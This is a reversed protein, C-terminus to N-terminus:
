GPLQIGPEAAMSAAQRDIFANWDTAREILKDRVQEHTFVMFTDDVIAAAVQEGVAEPQLVPFGPSRTTTPPGFTPPMTSMINTMVPGPCLVTVGIGQPRLYLRLGESLAIIAAKTAAYPLRDYAYTYLGAFSATNVVHGHGQAILLPLFAANSRVVSMLNVSIVREWEAVPIHEPLGRTLVGVNNMIIGASGFRELTADRLSEFADPAAVDCRVGIAEGGASTVAAAVAQAAQGDIDAVVIRAGRSALSFATARGIGSGGGTIIATVAHVSDM